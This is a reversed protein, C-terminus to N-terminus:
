VILEKGKAVSSHTLQDFNFIGTNAPANGLFQGLAGSTQRAVAGDKLQQKALALNHLINADNPANALAKQFENIASAYNKQKLLYLGSNNLQQAALTRQQQAPDPPTAPSGYFLDHVAQQLYPMAPQGFDLVMQQQPTPGAPAASVPAQSPATGCGGGYGGQCVMDKQSQALTESEPYIALGIFLVVGFLVTRVM